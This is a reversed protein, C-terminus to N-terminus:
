GGAGAGAFDAYCYVVVGFVDNGDAPREDEDMEGEAAEGMYARVAVERGNPLRVARKQAAVKGSYEVAAGFGLLLKDSRSLVAEENLGKLRDVVLLRGMETPRAGTEMQYRIAKELTGIDAEAAAHEAAWDTVDVPIVVRREADRKAM